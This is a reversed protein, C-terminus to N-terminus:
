ANNPLYKSKLFEYVVFRIANNPVVKIANPFIGKYFGSVGETKLITKFANSISSYHQGHLQMRRRITDLPFCVSQAFLGACAGLVFTVGINKELNPFKQFTTHKLQDFTAFNIGIFPALSLLTANYGKFFTKFGQEAYVSRFVDGFSRLEPQVALRLRMVDLPHTLSTATVGALAGAFLRRSISINKDEFSLLYKYKEYSVFQTSAYPFVRICNMGNGRWLKLVGEHHVIYRVSQTLSNYKKGNRRILAQTQMLIKVHDMPAVFTRATVGAVGGCFLQLITKNIETMKNNININVQVKLFYNLFLM